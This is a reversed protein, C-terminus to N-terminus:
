AWTVGLARLQKRYEIAPTDPGRLHLEQSLDLPLEHPRQAEVIVRDQAFTLRHRANLEENSRFGQFNKGMLRFYKTEKPSIPCCLFINTLRENGGPQWRQIFLTFPLILTYLQRAAADARLTNVPQEITYQFGDTTKDIVIDECEPNERDGLTGPHVWPFHSYDALNEVIRAASAQWVGETAFPAWEFAPDNYEPPFEPIEARPEDLCVWIFGHCEMARHVRARAKAPILRDRPISPIRTCLGGANYRWGHYACVIEGDEVSGLSLPTGRHICLDYFVVVGDPARWVVLPEGLLKVAVPKDTVSRACIVPHWYYRLVNEQHQLPDVM